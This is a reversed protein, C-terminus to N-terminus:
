KIKVTWYNGVEWDMRRCNRMGHKRGGRELLINRVEIGLGQWADGRRPAKFRELTLQIKKWQSWVLCDEVTYTNPPPPLM